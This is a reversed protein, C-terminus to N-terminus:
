KSAYDVTITKTLCYMKLHVEATTNVYSASYFGRGAIPLNSFRITPNSLTGNSDINAVIKVVGTFGAFQFNPITMTISNDGNDEVSIQQNEITTTEGDVTVKLTGTYSSNVNAAFATLSCLLMFLMCIKKM